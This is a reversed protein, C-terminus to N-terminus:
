VNREGKVKQFGLRMTCNDPDFKECVTFLTEGHASFTMYEMDPYIVSRTKTGEIIGSKMLDIVEERPYGYEEFLSYILDEKQKVLNRLYLDILNPSDIAIEDVNVYKFTSAKHVGDFIAKNITTM